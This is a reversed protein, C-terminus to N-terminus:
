AGQAVCEHTTETGLICAMGLGRCRDAVCRHLGDLETASVVTDPTSIDVRAGRDSLFVVEQGGKGLIRKLRHHTTWNLRKQHVINEYRDMLKQDVSQPSSEASQSATLNLATRTTNLM